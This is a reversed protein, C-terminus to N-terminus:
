KNAQTESIVLFFCSGSYKRIGKEGAEYSGLGKRATKALEYMENLVAPKFCPDNHSPLLVKVEGLRPLVRESYTDIFVDLDGWPLHTYVCGTYFNDGTWFYGKEKELFMLHDPAHGPSHITELVRGGLDIKEGDALWRTVRYPPICYTEEYFPQPIHKCLSGPQIVELAQEHPVGLAAAERSVRHDYAWVEDYLYNGGIHDLHRHTNVVFVPLSTLKNVLERIDALNDGTDILAARESGMVLYSVNEDFQGDENIVLTDEDLRYVSYWEQGTELKELNKYGERPLSDWWNAPRILENETKKKV